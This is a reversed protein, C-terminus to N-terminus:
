ERSQYGGLGHKGCKPRFGYLVDITHEGGGSTLVM